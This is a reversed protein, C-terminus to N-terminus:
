VNHWHQDCISMPRVCSRAVSHTTTTTANTTAIWRGRMLTDQWSVVHDIIIEVCRAPPMKRDRSVSRIRTYAYRDCQIGTGREDEGGRAFGCSGQTSMPGHFAFDHEIVSRRVTPNRM